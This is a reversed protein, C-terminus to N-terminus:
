SEKPTSRESLSSIPVRLPWCFAVFTVFWGIEVLWAPPRRVRHAAVEPIRYLVLDPGAVVQEAGALRADSSARVSETRGAEGLSPGADVAVYRVGHAALAATLPGGSRILPDLERVRPDEAALVIDGEGGAGGTGAGGRRDPVGVRIADDLVVPAPLYRPLPDLARRGGNWPYSRYAEWPLVLVEGPEAAVVARARAWDPPYAVAALRGAAGWALGPLLVVPLVPLVALAPAVTGRVRRGLGDVALGAGVAVVVALPAVYQQGDRLVAFGPWLGIAGRLAGPAVAGLAAVLLGAPASVALGRSMPLDRGRAFAVVAVLVLCLWLLSTALDGYAPPVTEANWGGGLLFLSGLTGFPTDARAAFAGVGAPDAPAGRLLSPVLWPLAVAVLLVVSTLLARVSRPGTACLVVLGSVAWAAFGGVAAPILAPWLRRDLRHRDGRAACAAVLPLAAYGLLLAWQGLLLREAVFPNWAYVVGATLRATLRPSPVVAAASVCALVFISVLVAKQVLDAPALRSLVGIVADSPVHRPLMGSLGFTVDTLVPHPVFVMDYALTFGPALAPGLALVGLGLGTCAAAVAHWGRM